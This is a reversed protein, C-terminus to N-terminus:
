ATDWNWVACYLRCVKCRTHLKCVVFDLHLVKLVILFHNDNCFFCFAGELFGFIFFTCIIYSSIINNIQVPIFVPTGQVSLTSDSFIRSM